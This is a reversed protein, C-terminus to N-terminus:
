AHADRDLMLMFLNRVITRNASRADFENRASRNSMVTLMVWDKEGVTIGTPVLWPEKVVFAAHVGVGHLMVAPEIVCNTMLRAVPDATVLPGNTDNLAMSLLLLPELLGCYLANVLIREPSCDSRDKSSM